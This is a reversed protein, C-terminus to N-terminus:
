NDSYLLGVLALHQKCSDRLYQSSSTMLVLGFEIDTGSFALCLSIILVFMVCHFWKVRCKPPWLPCVRQCGSQMDDVLNQRQIKPM